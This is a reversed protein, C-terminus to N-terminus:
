LGRKDRFNCFRVTLSPDFEDMSFVTALDFWDDPDEPPHFLDTCYILPIKGKSTQAADALPLLSGVILLSIIMKSIAQKSM